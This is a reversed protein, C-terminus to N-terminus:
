PETIVGLFRGWLAFIVIYVVYWFSPEYNLFFVLIGYLIIGFGTSALFGQWHSHTKFKPLYIAILSVIFVIFIDFVLDYNWHLAAAFLRFALGLSVGIVIGALIPLWEIGSNILATLEKEESFSSEETLLRSIYAPTGIFKFMASSFVLKRIVNDIAYTQIGVRKRGPMRKLSKLYRADEPTFGREYLEWIQIAIPTVQGYAVANSYKLCEQGVKILEAQTISSTNEKGHRAKMCIINFGAGTQRFLVLDFYPQLPLLESVNGVPIPALFNDPNLIPVTSNEDSVLVVYGKEMMLRKCLYEISARSNKPLLSIQKTKPQPEMQGPLDSISSAPLLKQLEKRAIQNNPNHKLAEELCQRRMDSSDMVASMWVWARDNDPDEKLLQLLLAKGTAKDGNKIATVAHQMLTNM